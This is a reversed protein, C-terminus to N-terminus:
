FGCPWRSMGAWLSCVGRERRSWARLERGLHSSLRKGPDARKLIFRIELTTLPGGISSSPPLASQAQSSQLPLWLALGAGGTGSTWGSAGLLGMIRFDSQAKWIMPFIHKNHHSCLFYKISCNEVQRHSVYKSMHIHAEM